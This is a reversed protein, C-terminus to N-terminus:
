SRSLFWKTLNILSRRGGLCDQEFAQLLVHSGGFFGLGFELPFKCFSSRCTWPVVYFSDSSLGQV